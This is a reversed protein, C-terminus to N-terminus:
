VEEKNPYWAAQVKQGLQAYVRELVPGTEPERQMYARLVHTLVGAEFPDLVLTISTPLEDSMM